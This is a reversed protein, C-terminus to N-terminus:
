GQPTTRVEFPDHRKSMARLTPSSCATESFESTPSQRLGRPLDHLQSTLIEVVQSRFGRRAIELRHRKFRLPLILRLLSTFRTCAGLTTPMRARGRDSVARRTRPRNLANPGGRRRHELCFHRCSRCRRAPYRSRLQRPAPSRRPARLTAPPVVDAASSGTRIESQPPALASRRRTTNLVDAPAARCFSGCVDVKIRHVHQASRVVENREASFAGDNCATTAPPRAHVRCARTAPHADRAPITRDNRDNETQWLQRARRDAQFFPAIIHAM